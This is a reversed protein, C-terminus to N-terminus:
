ESAERVAMGDVLEYNGSVVVSDGEALDGRLGIRDGDRPGPQVAVRHARGQKVVFVHAGRDDRLVASRPVVLMNEAPLHIHGELWTGPRLPATSKDDLAVLVDVRQSAPNVDAGVSGVVADFGGHDGFVGSLTVRQGSSVRAAQDPEVGLRVMLGDDPALRLLETNAPLRDGPSVLAATVVGSADATFQQQEQDAGKARAAGLAAQADALQRQAQHLDASTALHDPLQRKVRAIDAEALELGAKAQRWERVAAPDTSLTLLSQGAEVHQGQQVLVQDVRGGTATSLRNLRAPDPIARGYATIVEGIDGRQAPTTQVLVSLDAAHLSGAGGLLILTACAMLNKM